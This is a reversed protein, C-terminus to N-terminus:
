CLRSMIPLKVGFGKIKILNLNLGKTKCKLGYAKDLKKLNM